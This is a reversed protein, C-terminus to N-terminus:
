ATGKLSRCLVVPHLAHCVRSIPQFTWLDYGAPFPPGTNCCFLASLSLLIFVLRDIVENDARQLM